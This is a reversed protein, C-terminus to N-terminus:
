GLMTKLLVQVAEECRELLKKEVAAHVKEVSQRYNEVAELFKAKEVIVQNETGNCLVEELGSIAEKAEMNIHFEYRWTREDDLKKFAEQVAGKMLVKAALTQLKKIQETQDEKQTGTATETSDEANKLKTPLEAQSAKFATELSEVKVGERQKDEPPANNDNICQEIEGAQPEVEVNEKSIVNLRAEVRGQGNAIANDDEMSVLAARKKKVDEMKKEHMKKEAKEAKCKPCAGNEFSSIERRRITPKCLNDEKWNACKQTHALVLHNCDYQTTNLICTCMTFPPDETISPLPINQRIRAVKASLEATREKLQQTSSLVKSASIDEVSSLTEAQVGPTAAFPPTSLSPISSTTAAVTLREGSSSAKSDSIDQIRRHSQRPASRLPGPVYMTLIDKSDLVTNHFVSKSCLYVCLSFISRLLRRVRLVRRYANDESTLRTAPMPQESKQIM